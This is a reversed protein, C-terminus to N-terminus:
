IEGGFGFPERHQYEVGFANQFLAQKAAVLDPCGFNAALSNRRSFVPEKSIRGSGTRCNEGYAVVCGLPNGSV